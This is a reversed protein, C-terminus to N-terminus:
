SGRSMDAPRDPSEQLKAPEDVTFSHFLAPDFGRASVIRRLPIVIRFQEKSGQGDQEYRETIETYFVDFKLSRTAADRYGSAFPILVLDGEARTGITSEIPAGVYCKDNELSVEMLEGSTISDEALLGIRDGADAAVERRKVRRDVRLNLLPPMSWGLIACLVSSGSSEFPLLKTWSVEIWPFLVELPMLILRAVVFLCGGAVATKLVVHYGTDQALRDRTGDYRTLFLYGGLAPVLM